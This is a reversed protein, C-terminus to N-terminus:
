DDQLHLDIPPPIIFMEVAPEADANVNSQPPSLLSSEKLNEKLQYPREWHLAEKLFRIKEERNEKPLLDETTDAGKTDKWHRIQLDCFDVCYGDNKGNGYLGKAGSLPADLLTLALDKNLRTAANRLVFPLLKLDGNKLYQVFAGTSPVRMYLGCGVGRDDAYSHIQTGDRELEPETGPRPTRTDFYVLLSDQLMPDEFIRVSAKSTLDHQPKMVEVLDEQQDNKWAAVIENMAETENFNGLLKYTHHEPNSVEAQAQPNGNEKTYAILMPSSTKQIEEALKTAEKEIYRKEADTLRRLEKQLGPHQYYGWTDSEMDALDLLDEDDPLELSSVNGALDLPEEDGDDQDSTDIGSGWDINALDSDAIAPGSESQLEDELVDGDDDSGAPQETDANVVEQMKENTAKQESQITIGREKAIREIDKWTFESEGAENFHGYSNDERWFIDSLETEDLGLKKAADKFSVNRDEM